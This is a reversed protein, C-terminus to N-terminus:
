EIRIVPQYIRKMGDMKIVVLGANKMYKLTAMVRYKLMGTEKTIVDVTPKYDYAVKNIALKVKEVEKDRVWTCYGDIYGVANKPKNRKHKREYKRKPRDMDENNNTEAPKLRCEYIDGMVVIEKVRGNMMTLLEAEIKM